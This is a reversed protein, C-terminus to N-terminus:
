DIRGTFWGILLVLNLISLVAGWIAGVSGAGMFIFLYYPTGVFNIIPSFIGIFNFISQTWDPYQTASASTGTTSQTPLKSGLSNNFVLDGGTGTTVYPTLLNQTSFILYGSLTATPDLSQVSLQYM